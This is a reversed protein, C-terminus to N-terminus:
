FHWTLKKPINVFLALMMVPSSSQFVSGNEKQARTVDNLHYIYKSYLNELIIFGPPVRFPKKDLTRMKETLFHPGPSTPPCLLHKPEPTLHIQTGTGTPLNKM